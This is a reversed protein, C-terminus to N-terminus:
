DLDPTAREPTIVEPATVKPALTPAKFMAVMEDAVRKMLADGFKTGAHQNALAILTQTEYDREWWGEKGEKSFSQELMTGPRLINRSFYCLEGDPKDNERRVHGGAELHKLYEAYNGSNNVVHYVQMIVIKGDITKPYERIKGTLIVFNKNM